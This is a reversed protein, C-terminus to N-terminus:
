AQVMEPETSDNGSVPGRFRFLVPLPFVSYDRAWHLVPHLNRHEAAAGGAKVEGNRHLQAICSV